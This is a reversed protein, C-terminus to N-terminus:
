RHNSHSRVMVGEVSVNEGRGQSGGVGGRGETPRRDRGDERVESKGEEDIGTQAAPTRPHPRTEL